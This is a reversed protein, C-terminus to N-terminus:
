LLERIDEWHYISIKKAQTSAANNMALALAKAEMGRFKKLRGALMFNIAPWIKQFIKEAARKEKREGLLLSPRFIHTHAFALAIIDRETEGKTKLYFTRSAANAGVASVLFVATAGKARALRAAEVPYDHDAQYYLNRDPTNAKTTGLAIFVDDAIIQPELTHLSNYDGRLKLLKPHTHPLDKRSLTIVQEYLDNNLLDDLLYTGTLGSAGFLIAKKMATLKLPAQLNRNNM